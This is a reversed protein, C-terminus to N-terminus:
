ELDNNDNSNVEDNNNEKEGNKKEKIEFYDGSDLYVIGKNGDLQQYIRGYKNIKEIKPLTVYVVNGDNMYLIFREKDVSVPSYEIQSIQSLIDENVLAFAKVFSDYVDSVDNILTPYDTLNKINDVKKGNLLILENSSTMALPRNETVYLYVKNGIRKKVKVDKIYVNKLINKKIQFAFNLAFSPYDTLKASEIIENDSIIENDIVYINKIPLTLVVYLTLGIIVLTLLGLIVKKVNIKRKKVRKNSKKKKM